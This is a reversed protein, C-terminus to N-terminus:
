EPFISKEIALALSGSLSKLLLLDDKRFGYPKKFTDVYLAAYTIGNSTLPVCLVSAINLTDDNESVDRSAREEYATNSMRVSKGERKVRDIIKLSFANLAGARNERTKSIVRSIPPSEKSGTAFLVISCRHIRPLADMVRMLVKDLLDPLEWPEKLLDTVSCILELNASGTARRDGDSPPPPTKARSPLILQKTDSSRGKALRSVRLVTMGITIADGEDIEFGEGSPITKGNILTGNTSKLDEIFVKKGIQFIKLQKRSIAGDHIQIDNKSSRGVFITEKNFPFTRGKMTGELVVISPM